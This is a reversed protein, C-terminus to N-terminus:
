RKKEPMSAQVFRLSKRKQSAANGSRTLQQVVLQQGQHAAAQAALASAVRRHLERSYPLRYARPRTSGPPELWLDIEGADGPSPTRVVGSVLTAGQPPRASDPWGIPPRAAQWVLIALWPTAIALPLRALFPVRNMSLLAGALAALGAFALAYLVLPTVRHM